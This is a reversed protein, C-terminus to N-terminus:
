ARVAKVKEAALSLRGSIPAVAERVLKVVAERNKTGTARASDLNKRAIEGQLKFFDTPNKVARLDKFDSKITDLASRREAAVTGRIDRLGAALIKGSAVVADLNGRSFDRVDGLATKGKELAEKAKGQGDSLKQKFNDAYTSTKEMTTEKPKASFLSLRKPQPTPAASELAAPPNPAPSAALKPATAATKAEVIKPTAPTPEVIPLPKTVALKAASAKLAAAKAAVPPAQDPEAVPAHVTAARAKKPPVARAAPTAPAAKRPKAARLVPAGPSELPDPTDAVIVVAPTEVVAADIAEPSSQKTPVANSAASAAEAYAKSASAEDKGENIKAM